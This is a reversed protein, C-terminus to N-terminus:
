LKFGDKLEKYEFASLDSIIISTLNKNDDIGILIRDFKLQNCTKESWFVKIFDNGLVTNFNIPNDYVLQNKINQFEITPIGCETGIIRGLNENALSVKSAAVLVIKRLLRSDKGISFELLTKNFDGIRWCIIDEVENNSFSIRFPVYYDIKINTKTIETIKGIRLM